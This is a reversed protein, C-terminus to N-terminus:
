LSAGASPRTHAKQNLSVRLFLVASELTICPASHFSFQLSLFFFISAGLFSFSTWLGGNCQLLLFFSCAFALRLLMCCAACGCPPPYRHRTLSDSALTPNACERLLLYVVCECVLSTFSFLPPPSFYLLSLPAYQSPPHSVYLSSSLPGTLSEV